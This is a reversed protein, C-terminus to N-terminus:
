CPYQNPHLHVTDHPSKSKVKSGVTTVKIKLIKDQYYRLFRLTYSTSVQYGCQNHSTPTYHLPIVNIQGQQLSKVKLIKDMSNKQIVFVILLHM